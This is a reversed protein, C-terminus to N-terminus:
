SRRCAPGARAAPSRPPRGRLCAGRPGARPLSPARRRSAGTRRPASGARRQRNVGQPASYSLRRDDRGRQTGSRARRPQRRFPPRHPDGRADAIGRAARVPRHAREVRAHAGPRQPARLEPPDLATAEDAWRELLRRAAHGAAIRHASDVREDVVGPGVRRLELPGHGPPARRAAREQPQGCRLHAVGPRTAARAGSGSPPAGYPSSSHRVASPCAHVKAPRTTPPVTPASSGRQFRNAGYGVCSPPLQALVAGVRACGSCKLRVLVGPSASGSLARM